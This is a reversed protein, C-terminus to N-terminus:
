PREGSQLLARLEDLSLGELGLAALTRGTAKFDTGTIAGGIALFGNILPLDLGAAEGLSAMLSLGLRTDELMYRHSLLEIHERWDGSDTLKEHSANGYMWEERTDDYHDALPFHPAGYGLAQRLEIREADLADTTRRISPQTGENHIDWADFHELPGANMIILPPHIIPGANMLAGDLADSLREVPYAAAIVELARDTEIAPFVGTPLRTAYVSIRVHNTDQKRALYPLTGTEAFAAGAMNGAGRAAEAFIYSGFTGPPLFAVQGDEWHPALVKSLADHSTAPLPIVVLEAGHMADAIDSTALAIEINRSGQWDTLTIAGKELVPALAEGDRRWLRVSHGAESLHAAAAYCGHGGGIVAIEM